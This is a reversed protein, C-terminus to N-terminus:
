PQVHSHTEHRTNNIYYFKLNACSLYFTSVDYFRILTDGDM